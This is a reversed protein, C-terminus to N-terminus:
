TECVLGSDDRRRRRGRPGARSRRRGRDRDAGGARRARDRDRRVSGPPSGSAAATRAPSSGDGAITAAAAVGTTTGSARRPPARPTRSRRRHDEDRGVRHRDVREERGRVPHPRGFREDIARLVGNAAEAYRSPRACSAAPMATSSPRGRRAAGCASPRPGSSAREAVRPGGRGADPPASARPGSPSRRSRTCSSAPSEAAMPRRPRPARRSPPRGARARPAGGRDRAAGAALATGRVSTSRDRRARPGRGTATRLPRARHGRRGARAIRPPRPLARRRVAPRGTRTSPALRPPETTLKATMRGHCRFRAPAALAAGHEAHDFLRDLERGESPKRTNASRLRRAGSPRRARPSRAEAHEERDAAGGVPDALGVVERPSDPNKQDSVCPTPWASKPPSNPAAM